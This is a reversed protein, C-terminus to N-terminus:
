IARNAKREDFWVINNGVVARAPAVVARNHVNNLMIGVEDPMIGMFAMVGIIPTGM